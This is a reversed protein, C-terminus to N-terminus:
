MPQSISPHTEKHGSTQNVGPQVLQYQHPWVLYIVLYVTNATHNTLRQAQEVSNHQLSALVACEAEVNGILERVAVQADADALELHEEFLVLVNRELNPHCRQAFFFLCFSAAVSRPERGPTCVVDSM